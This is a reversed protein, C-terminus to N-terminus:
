FQADIFPALKRLAHARHSIKNKEAKSLEAMSRNWQEVFFIPDYGFGNEGRRETLIYGECTGEVVITQENPVAIALACHFRGTRQKFPVGQLKTLVKDINADDDKDEGAYRASYVGPEGNLADIALGSDDAIVIKNLKKSITEAKITANEAFTTGTEEVDELAPFDLLSKVEFGKPAFLAEFDKVKGVNKTAIIIERM